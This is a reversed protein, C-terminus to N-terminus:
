MKLSYRVNVYIFTFHTKNMIFILLIYNIILIFCLNRIVDYFSRTSFYVIGKTFTKSVNWFYMWLNHKYLQDMLIENCFCDLYDSSVSMAFGTNM